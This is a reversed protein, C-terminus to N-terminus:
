SQLAFVRVVEEGTTLLLRLRVARPLPPDGLAAAPWAPVWALARIPAPEYWKSRKSVRTTSRWIMCQCPSTRSLTAPRSASL